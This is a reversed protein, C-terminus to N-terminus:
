PNKTVLPFSEKHVTLNNGVQLLYFNSIKNKHSSIIFYVCSFYQCLPCYETELSISISGSPCCGTSLNSVWPDIRGSSRGPGPEFTPIWEEGVEETETTETEGKMNKWIM